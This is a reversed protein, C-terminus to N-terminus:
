HCLSSSTEFSEWLSTANAVRIWISVVVSLCSHHSCPWGRVSSQLYSLSNTSATWLSFTSLPDSRPLIMSRSGERRRSHEFCASKDWHLKKPKESIRHHLHSIWTSLENQTAQLHPWWALTSWFGQHFWRLHGTNSNTSSSWLKHAPSIACITNSNLTEGSFRITRTPLIDNMKIWQILYVLFCREYVKGLCLLLSVPDLKIWLFSQHNKKQFYFWRRSSGTNQIPTKSSYIMLYKSFFDMTASLFRSSCSIRYKKM